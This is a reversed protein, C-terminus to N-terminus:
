PQNLWWDLVSLNPVFDGWLQPYNQPIFHQYEINIGVQTFDNENLYDSGLKGSLYHNAGFHMCLDLVLDSKTRSIPLTSSRVIQTEIGLEFLWFKLHEYCYDALFPQDLEILPVIKVFRESFRPIKRYNMEISNRHKAKWPQSDDILTAQLTSGTHGKTKVPITLWLEGQPTKIKNRNIFSNKEYQVTDLFIFVDSQRIKEFYGLWPLYAPQHASLIKM